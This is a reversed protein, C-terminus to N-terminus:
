GLRSLYGKTQRSLLDLLGAAMESTEEDTGPQLTELLEAADIAGAHDLRAIVAALANTLATLGHISQEWNMKNEVLRAAIPTPIKYESM